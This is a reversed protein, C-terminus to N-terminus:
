GEDNEKEREREEMYALANAQTREMRRERLWRHYEGVTDEQMELLDVMSIEGDQALQVLEDYPPCGGKGSLNVYIFREQDEGCVIVAKSAWFPMYHCRCLTGDPFSEVCNPENDFTVTGGDKAALRDLLNRFGEETLAQRDFCRARVM